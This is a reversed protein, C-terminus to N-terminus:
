LSFSTHAFSRAAEKTSFSVASTYSWLGTSLDWGSGLIQSPPAIGTGKAAGVETTGGGSPIQM